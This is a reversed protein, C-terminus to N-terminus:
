GTPPTKANIDNIISILQPLCVSKLDYHEVAFARAQQGLSDRLTQNELLRITQNVIDEPSFFNALLGTQGVKIVERVPATDSAVIACGCAM